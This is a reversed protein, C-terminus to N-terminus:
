KNVIWNEELKKLDWDFKIIDKKFEAFTKKQLNETLLETYITKGFKYFYVCEASDLMVAIYNENKWIKVIRLINTTM